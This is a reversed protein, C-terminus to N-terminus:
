LLRQGGNQARQVRDNEHCSKICRECLVCLNSNYVIKNWNAKPDKPKESSVKETMMGFEYATDQLMCEGAKDCVPCDLPHKILIFDLMQKRHTWIYENDTEVKMGDMAYTVCAAQLRKAGDVQVLCLRCAGIPTIEKLYCLTPIHVGNRNAVDLISEGKEFSYTNGNIIIAAM